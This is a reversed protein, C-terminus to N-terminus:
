GPATLEDLVAKSAELLNVRGAPTAAYAALPAALDPAQALAERLQAPQLLLYMSFSRPVLMKACRLVGDWLRPDTTWVQEADMLCSLVRALAVGRAGGAGSRSGARAKMLVLKELLELVFGHLKPAAGM